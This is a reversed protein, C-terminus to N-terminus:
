PSLLVNLHQPPTIISVHSSDFYETYPKLNECSNKHLYREKPIYRQTTWQFDVSTESPRTMELWCIHPLYSKQSGAEHHNKVQRIRRGQFHLCFTRGFSRTVKTM